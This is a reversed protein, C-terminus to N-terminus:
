HKQPGFSVVSPPAQALGAERRLWEELGFRPILVRRGLRVHPICGQAVLEYTKNRSLRLLRATEKVTLVLPASGDSGRAM